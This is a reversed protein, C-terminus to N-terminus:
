ATLGGDITYVSGTVYSAEESLLWAALGAVEDVSGLRGLKTAAIRRSVGGDAEHPFRAANLSRLMRTDMFGPAIANVRIGSAGVEHAACRTLALVAAKSSIYPSLGSGGGAVGASSTNVISGGTGQDLMVRMVRQMGLLVGRVNVDHVRDFDAVDLDVIPAVVGEIGANNFFLDIQGFEAVTEDVYRQVADPNSVDAVATRVRDSCDLETATRALSAEDRDVIMVRAGEKLLRRATAAGIGAAGGTVIAAKGSFRGTLGM